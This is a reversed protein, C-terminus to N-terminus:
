KKKYERNKSAKKRSTRDTIYQSFFTSIKASLQPNTLEGQM